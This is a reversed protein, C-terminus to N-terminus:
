GYFRRSRPKVTRCCGRGVTFGRFRVTLRLVAPGATQRNPLLRPWGHFRAVARDLTSGHDGRDCPEVAVAALRAVAFGYPLAPQAPHITNVRAHLVWLKDDRSILRDCSPEAQIRSWQPRDRGHFLRLQLLRPNCLSHM